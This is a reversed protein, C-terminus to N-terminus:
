FWAPSVDSIFSSLLSLHVVHSCLLGAQPGRHFLLEFPFSCHQWRADFGRQKPSVLTQRMSSPMHYSLAAMAVRDHQLVHIAPPVGYCCASCSLKLALTKEAFMQSMERPLVSFPGPFPTFHKLPNLKIVHVQSAALTIYSAWATRRLWAFSFWAVRGIAPCTLSVMPVFQSVWFVHIFGTLVVPLLSSGAWSLGTWIAFAHTFLYTNNQAVINQLSMDRLILIQYLICM